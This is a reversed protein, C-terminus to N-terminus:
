NGSMWVIAILPMNQPLLTGEPKAASAKILLAGAYIRQRPDYLSEWIKPSERGVPCGSQYRDRNLALVIRIRNLRFFHVVQPHNGENLILCNHLYLFNNARIAAPQNLPRERARLILTQQKLRM